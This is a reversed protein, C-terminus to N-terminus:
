VVSFVTAARPFYVFIYIQLVSHARRPNLSFSASKSDVEAGTGVDCDLFDAVALLWRQM